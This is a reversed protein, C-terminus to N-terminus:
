AIQALNLPIEFKASESRDHTGYDNQKPHLQMATAAFYQLHSLWVKLNPGTKCHSCLTTGLENKISIIYECCMTLDIEVNQHLM